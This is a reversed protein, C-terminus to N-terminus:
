SNWDLRNEYRHDKWQLQESAVAVLNQLTVRCTLVSLNKSRSIEGVLSLSLSM